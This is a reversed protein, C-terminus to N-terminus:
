RAPPGEPCIKSGRAAAELVEVFERLTEKGAENEYWSMKRGIEQAAAGRAVVDLWFEALAAPQEIWCGRVTWAEDILLVTPTSARGDPARHAEMWPRGLESSVVRLEVGPLQSALKALYPITSVSDSCAADSVALIRWGSGTSQARELIAEPVESRAWNSEWLDRRANASSLFREFPVASDWLRALDPEDVAACRVSSAAELPVGVGMAAIAALGLAWGGMVRGTCRATRQTWSRASLLWSVFQTLGNMRM